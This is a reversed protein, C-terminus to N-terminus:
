SRMATLAAGPDDFVEAPLWRGDDYGPSDWAGLERRADYSEGMIMDSELIPGYATRWEPGTAITQSGGDAYTVVLQALLRPRDGYRQRELWGVHGAYWGDGLIAGLVNEGQRLLGTVDYVQYQVRIDYDTWGPAFVDDGVVQGNLHPEYVGLATAYLRARAVPRELMFRTRLFPAPSTSYQGGALMGGVWQGQWASRELLGMEWWAPESYGSPRGDADWVRVKWWAREGSALARGGYAVGLSRGTAVKGSDWLDGRDAALADASGAVLVQYATQRQGRRGSEVIWSLRPQAIDLGLPNTLHECRLQAPQLQDSM